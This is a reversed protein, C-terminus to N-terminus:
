IFNKLVAHRQKGHDQQPRNRITLHGLHHQLRHQFEASLSHCDQESLGVSVSYQCPIVYLDERFRWIYLTIVFPLECKKRM